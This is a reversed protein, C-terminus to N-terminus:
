QNLRERYLVYVSFIMAIFQSIGLVVQFTDIHANKALTVMTIGSLPGFIAIYLGAKNKLFALFAAVGYIFVASLAVFHRATFDESGLLVLRLAHGGVGAGLLLGSIFGYFKDSM